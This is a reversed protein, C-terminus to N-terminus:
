VRRAHEQRLAKASATGEAQFVSEGWMNARTGGDSSEPRQEMDVDESSGVQMGVGGEGAESEKKARAVEQNGGSVNYRTVSQGQGSTFGRTDPAENIGQKVGPAWSLAQCM